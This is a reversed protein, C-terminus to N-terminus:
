VPNPTAKEEPPESSQVPRIRFYLMLVLALAIVVFSTWQAATLGAFRDTDGRLFELMLRGFSYLINYFLFLYGTPFKRMKLIFLLALVVLDWQGEWVEAPWLPQSGYVDYAYTGPPYVLGFGSDTPSGFADGNMLCAIRGVAQGLIVGPAALDAFEWFNIKNFYTYLGGGVFGGVLGGQISMGGNWIAFMESLHQSYYHWEFFLVQWLRAGIISGLIAWVVLSLVHDEYKGAQKAMYMTLGAALLIAFAVITGYSRVEFSGIQFLIQHM